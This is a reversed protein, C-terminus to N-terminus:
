LIGSEGRSVFLKFIQDGLVENLKYPILILVRYIGRSVKSSVFQNKSQDKM